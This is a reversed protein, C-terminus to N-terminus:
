LFIKVTAIDDNTSFAAKLEEKLLEKPMYPNIFSYLCNLFGIYIM